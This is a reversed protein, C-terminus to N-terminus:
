EGLPALDSKAIGAAERAAISARIEKMQNEQHFHYRWGLRLLSEIAKGQSVHFGLKGELHERYEEVRALLDNAIITQLRAM